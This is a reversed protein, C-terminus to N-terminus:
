PEHVHGGCCLCFTTRKGGRRQYLTSFGGKTFNDEDQLETWSPSYIFSDSLRGFFTVTEHVGTDLRNELAVLVYRDDQAHSRPCNCDSGYLKQRKIFAMVDDQM